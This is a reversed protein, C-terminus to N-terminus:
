MGFLVFIVVDDVHMCIPVLFSYTNFRANLNFKSQVM